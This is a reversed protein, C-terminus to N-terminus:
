NAAQVPNRVIIGALLYPPNCWAKKPHCGPMCRDSPVDNEAPAASATAMFIALAFVLAKFQVM